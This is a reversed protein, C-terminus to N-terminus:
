KCQRSILCILYKKMYFETGASLRKLGTSMTVFEPICPQLIGNQADLAGVSSAMFNETVSLHDVTTVGVRVKEM